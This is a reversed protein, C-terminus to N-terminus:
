FNIQFIKQLIGADKIYGCILSDSVATDLSSGGNPVAIVTIFILIIFILIGWKVVALVLGLFSDAAGIVPLKSVAILMRSAIGVILRVAFFVAAFALIGIVVRVMIDAAEGRVIDPLVTEGSFAGEIRGRLSQPLTTGMLIESIVPRLMYAAAIAAAFSLFSILSRAFGRRKGCIAAFILVAAAAIDIYGIGINFINLKM